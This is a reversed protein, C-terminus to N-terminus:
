SIRPLSFHICFRDCCATRGRQQREQKKASQRRRAGLVRSQTEVMKVPERGPGSLADLYCHVVHLYLEQSLEDRKAFGVLRLEFSQQRLQFAKVDPTIFERPVAFVGVGVYFLDARLQARRAPFLNDFNAIPVLAILNEDHRAVVLDGSKRGDRGPRSLNADYVYDARHVQIFHGEQVSLKMEHAAVSRADSSPPSISPSRIQLSSFFTYRM